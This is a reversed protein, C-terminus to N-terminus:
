NGEEKQLKYALAGDEHVIWEKCVSVIFVFVILAALHNLLM